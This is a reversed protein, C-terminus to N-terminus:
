TTPEVQGKRHSELIRIVRELDHEDMEIDLIAGDMRIFRVIQSEGHSYSRAIGFLKMPKTRGMLFQDVIPSVALHFAELEEKFGKPLNEPWEIAEDHLYRETFDILSTLTIGLIAAISKDMEEYCHPWDPRSMFVPIIQSAKTFVIADDQYREICSGIYDVAKYGNEYAM